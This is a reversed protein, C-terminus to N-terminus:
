KDKEAPKAEEPHNFAQNYVDFDFLNATKISDFPIVIKFDNTDLDQPKALLAPGYDTTFRFSLTIPDRYGSAIPLLALSRETPRLNPSALVYGVYFKRTDLTVAVPKHRQAASDLLIAIEDGARKLASDKARRRPCFYNWVFPAIMGLFLSTVATGAFQVPAIESWASRFGNLWVVSRLSWILLRAAGFFGVGAFSSYLLLRYGELQQARFHFYHCFHVFWFGGLLPLLLLNTPV